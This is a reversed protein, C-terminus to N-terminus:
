PQRAPRRDEGPVAIANWEDLATRYAEAEPCEYLEGEGVGARARAEIVRKGLAVLEAPQHRTVTKTM